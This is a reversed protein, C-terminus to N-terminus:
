LKWLKLPVGLYPFEACLDVCCSVVNTDLVPNGQDWWIGSNRKHERVISLRRIFDLNASPSGHAVVQRHDTGALLIEAAGFLIGQIINSSSGQPQPSHHKTTLEMLISKGNTYKAANALTSKYQSNSRNPAAM